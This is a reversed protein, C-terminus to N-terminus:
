NLEVPLKEFAGVYCGGGISYKEGRISARSVQVTRNPLMTIHMKVTGGPAKYVPYNGNIWLRRDKDAFMGWPLTYGTDGPSMNSITNEEMDEPLYNTAM